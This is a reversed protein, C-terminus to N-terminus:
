RTKRWAKKRFEKVNELEGRDSWIGIVAQLAKDKDKTTAQTIVPRKKKDSVKESNM